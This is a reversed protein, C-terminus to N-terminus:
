RRAKEIPVYEEFINSRHLVDKWLELGKSTRWKQPAPLGLVVLKDDKEIKEATICKGTEPHVPTIIDPAVAAPKGDEYAVLVENKAKFEFTSGASERTGVLKIDVFTFGVETKREAHDVVGEFIKFGATENLVARVPEVSTRLLKGIQMSKSLSLQIPSTKVQVGTLIRRATYATHNWEGALVRAIREADRSGATEKVIVISKAHLDAVVMPALPIDDITYVKLHVEPVSRGAGDADVIPIGCRAAVDVAALTNFGGLEVPIMAYASFSAYEELVKLTKVAADSDYETTTTAGVCAFNVVKASDPVELPAVLKVTYGQSVLKDVIKHGVEPDGGGGASFIAAGDVLDLLDQNKLIRLSSVRVRSIQFNIILGKFM